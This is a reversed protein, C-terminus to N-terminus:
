IYRVQKLIRDKIRDKLSSITVMDVKIGLQQELYSELTFYDWGIPKKFEVLLDLDSNENQLDESYSGFYGINRVQFKDELEPKIVKLKSEIETRTLM